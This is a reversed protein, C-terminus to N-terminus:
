RAAIEFPRNRSVALFGLLAAGLLFVINHTYKALPPVDGLPVAFFGDIARALMAGTALTVIHRGSWRRSRSLHAIFAASAALLITRM